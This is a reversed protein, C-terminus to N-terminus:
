GTGNYILTYPSGAIGEDRYLEYGIVSSGGNNSNPTFKLVISTLTRSSDIATLSPTGPANAAM